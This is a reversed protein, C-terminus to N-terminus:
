PLKKAMKSTCLVMGIYKARHISSNPNSVSVAFSGIAKARNNRDPYQKNSNYYLYGATHVANEKSKFTAVYDKRFSYKEATEM